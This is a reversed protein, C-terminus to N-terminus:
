WKRRAILYALGVLIVFALAAPDPHVHGAAAGHGTNALTSVPWAAVAAALARWTYRPLAADVLTVTHRTCRALARWSAIDKAGATGHYLGNRIVRYKLARQAM